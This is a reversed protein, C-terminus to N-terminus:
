QVEQEIIKWQGTKDSGIREILGKERLSDVTRQITRVTKSTKEALEDRTYEPHERLLAFVAQETKNVTVNQPVNVTVNKEDSRRFLIFKFGIKGSEYTYKVHADKCLSDIRKFGSGFQEISKNLYLVKSITKNRIASEHNGQIYEEPSFESAYTGPSYISIMGPHICIEHYTQGNYIAHAFGNALVERIVAVPIEPIEERTLGVIEARWRINKLIYEEAAKLLNMINDEYLKMDLFTLKEDTAFVAAKLTVPRTNGFLIEGAKTLHDGNVLGFRKLIVPTTYRGSPLRGAAVAAEWFQKVSHKDIQKATASSPSMEWKEKSEGALFFSKLEEPTVERDEDATRLYYRGFASYPTNNGSFEVKILHKGDLIEERIVPYIQPHISEYIQRSVDRISSESVEQGSIEGDPKIGFFLTGIGHKNLIASISIMAPKLEGTTKKFELTESEKGYNM